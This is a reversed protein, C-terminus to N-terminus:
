KLSSVRNSFSFTNTPADHEHVSSWSGSFILGVINRKLEYDLMSHHTRCYVGLNRVRRAILQTQQTECDVILVTKMKLPYHYKENQLSIDDITKDQSKSFNQNNHM